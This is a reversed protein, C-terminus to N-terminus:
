MHNESRIQLYSLWESVVRRFDELSMKAQQLQNQALNDTAVCAANSALDLTLTAYDQAITVQTRTGSIVSSAAELIKNASATSHAACLFEAFPEFPAPLEVIPYGNPSERFMPSTM